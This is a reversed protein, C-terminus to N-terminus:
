ADDGNTPDDIVKAIDEITNGTSFRLPSSHRINDIHQYTSYCCSNVFVHSINHCVFGISKPKNESGDFVAIARRLIHCGITKLAGAEEEPALAPHNIDPVGTAVCRYGGRKLVQTM